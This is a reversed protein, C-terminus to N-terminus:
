IASLELDGNDTVPITVDLPNEKAIPRNSGWVDQYKIPHYRPNHDMECAECYGYCSGNYNPKQRLM